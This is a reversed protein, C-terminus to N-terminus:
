IEKEYFDLYKKTVHKPMCKEIIPNISKPYNEIALNIKKIYEEINDKDDILFKSYEGTLIESPGFNCDSSVIKIKLSSAEILSMPFGEYDSTCLLLNTNKIWDYINKQWGIIKVEKSIKLDKAMNLLKQKNPGDGCLVLDYKKYFYGEYFIKIARDQRKQDSLRGVVLIYPRIKHPNSCNKINLVIPSLPNYITKIFKKQLGYKKTAEEEIGKSVTVIKRNYFFAKLIFKYIATPGKQTSKVTNHFVYISRKGANSIRTVINAVPLHSTILEYTNINDVIENIKKHGFFICKIKELPNDLNYELYICNIKDNIDYNNQQPKSMAIIDVGYGQGLFEEAMNICVREAGGNGLGNVIFLIKKNKEVKTAEDNHKPSKIALLYFVFIFMQLQIIEFTIGFILLMIIAFLDAKSNNKNSLSRIALIFFIILGIIGTEALLQWYNSHPQVYWNGFRTNIASRASSIGNGVIPSNKFMEETVGWFLYRNEMTSTSSFLGTKPLIIASFIITTVFIINLIKKSSDKKFLSRTPIYIIGIIISVLITKSSAFGLAICFILTLIIKLITKIKPFQLVTIIGLVLLASAYNADEAYGALRVDIGLLNKQAVMAKVDSGSIDSLPIGIGTLIFSAILILCAIIMSTYIQNKNISNKYKYFIILAIANNALLINQNLWKIIDIELNNWLWSINSIFCWIFLLIILPFITDKELIAQRRNKRFFIDYILLIAELAVIIYRLDIGFLM